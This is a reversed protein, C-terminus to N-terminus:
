GLEGCHKAGSTVSRWIPDVGHDAYLSWNTVPTISGRRSRRLPDMEHDAYEARDAYFPILAKLPLLNNGQILLNDANAGSVDGHVSEQKLLHYPVARTTEKAQNKNVWDLFPM